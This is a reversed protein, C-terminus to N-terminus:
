RWSGALSVTVRGDSHDLLPAHTLSTAAMLESHLQMMSSQGGSLLLTMAEDKDEIGVGVLILLMLLMVLMLLM